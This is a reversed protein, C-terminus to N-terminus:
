VEDPPAVLLRQIYNIGDDEMYNIEGTLRNIRVHDKGEPGLGFCVAHGSASLARVSRLPKGYSVDACNSTYGILTGENTLVAIKKEGLCQISDRSALEYEHGLRSAENEMLPCAAATMPNFVPVTAGSDIVVALTEWTKGPKLEMTTVPCISGAIDTEKNWPNIVRISGVAQKLQEGNWSRIGTKALTIM